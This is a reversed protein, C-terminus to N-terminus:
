AVQSRMFNVIADSNLPGDYETSNGQKFVKLTPYGEIGNMYCIPKGYESTCDVKALPVPPNNNKLINAAKEYEHALEKSYKCWPAFFGVLITDHKGVNSEFDGSSFDLVDSGYVTDLVAIFLLVLSVKSFFM